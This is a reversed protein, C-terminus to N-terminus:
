LCLTNIRMECDTIEWLTMLCQLEYGYQAASFPLNDTDGDFTDDHHTHDHTRLLSADVRIIYGRGDSGAKTVEDRQGDQGPDTLAEVVAQTLSLSASLQPVDWTNETALGLTM